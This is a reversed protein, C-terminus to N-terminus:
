NKTLNLTVGLYSVVNLNAELTIRLNYRGFIACLDKICEIVRPPENFAALGNDGYLGIKDKSYKQTIQFILYTGFIESVEAGDFIGMTVDFM